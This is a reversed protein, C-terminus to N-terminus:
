GARRLHQRAAFGYGRYAVPSEGIRAIKAMLRRSSRAGSMVYALHVHSCGLVKAARRYSWGRAKLIVRIQEVDPLAHFLDTVTVPKEDLLIM